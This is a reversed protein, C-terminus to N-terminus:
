LFSDTNAGRNLISSANNSSNTGSTMAATISTPIACFSRGYMMLIHKTSTASPSIPSTHEIVAWYKAAFAAAPNPVPTRWARKSCM